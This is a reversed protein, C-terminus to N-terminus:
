GPAASAAGFLTRVGELATALESGTAGETSRAIAEAEGLTIRAADFRDSRWELEARACLLVGLNIEDSAERLLAAGADLRESAIAHRGQRAHLLGLYGLIQGKM